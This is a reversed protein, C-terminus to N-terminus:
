RRAMTGIKMSLSAVLPYPRISSIAPVAAPSNSPRSVLAKM